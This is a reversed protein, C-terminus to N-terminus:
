AANSGARTAFTTPAVLAQELDFFDFFRAHLTRFRELPNRSLSRSCTTTAARAIYVFARGRSAFRPL